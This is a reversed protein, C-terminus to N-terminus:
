RRLTSVMVCRVKGEDKACVVQEAAVRGLEFPLRAKRHFTLLGNEDEQIYVCASEGFLRSPRM